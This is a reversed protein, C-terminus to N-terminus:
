PNERATGADRETATNGVALGGWFLSVFGWYRFTDIGGMLQSFLVLIVGMLAIQRVGTYRMHMLVLYVFLGGGIVGLFIGVAALANNGIVMTSSSASVDRMDAITEKGGVGAGFLPSRLLTDVLVVYPLIMRREDATERTEGTEPSSDAATEVRSVASSFTSQAFYAGICGGILVVAAVSVVRTSLRQRQNLGVIALTIAASVLLMPSGMIVLMAVTAGAVVLARRWTVRVLLWGNVSAVFFKTVHSPEESFLKPRLWGVMNLDRLDADYLGYLDKYAWARFADSTARIVGLVELIAGVVILCWLILLTRELLSTSLQQMLRVISVAIAIALAFQILSLFKEQIHEYGPSLAISLLLVFAVKLVFMVDTLTLDRRVALLLLPSLAVTPFSPVLLRGGSVLPVSTYTSVVIL